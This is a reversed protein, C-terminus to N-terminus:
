IMKERLKNTVFEIVLILAFVMIIATTVQQFKFLKIGEQIMFGLGGGGVMGIVASSRINIDLKYLSWATFGAVFQPFVCQGMLQFWNAGTARIAEMQDPDIEDMVEAYSRTLLGVGSITLALTGAMTGLGVSAVILLVWVLNPITRVISAFARVAVQLAKNPTTRQSSLFALFFSIIASLVMSVFSMYLTDLTPKILSPIVSVDPPLFDYVIYKATDGLGLIVLDVRFNTDWMSWLTVAVVGLMSWVWVRQKQMHAKRTLALLQTQSLGGQRQAMTTNM